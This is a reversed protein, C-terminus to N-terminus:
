DLLATNQVDRGEQQRRHSSAEPTARRSGRAGFPGRRGASDHRRGESSERRHRRKTAVDGGDTSNKLMVSDVWHKTHYNDERSSTSVKEKGLGAALVLATAGRESNDSYNVQVTNGKLLRAVVMEHGKSVASM